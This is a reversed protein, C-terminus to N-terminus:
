IVSGALRRLEVRRATNLYFFIVVITGKYDDLSHKKGDKGGLTFPPAKKSELNM